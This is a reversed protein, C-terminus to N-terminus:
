GHRLSTDTSRPRAVVGITSVVRKVSLLVYDDRSSNSDVDDTDGERGDSGDFLQSSNFSCLSDIGEFSSSYSSYFSRRGGRPHPPGPAVRLSSLEMCCPYDRPTLRM